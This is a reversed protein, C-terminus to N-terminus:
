GLLFLLEEAMGAALPEEDHHDPRQSQEPSSGAGIKKAIPALRGLDTQNQAHWIPDEPADEQGPTEREDERYPETEKVHRIVVETLVLWRLMRSRRVKCEPRRRRKCSRRTGGRHM